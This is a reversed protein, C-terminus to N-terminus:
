ESVTCNIKHLNDPSVGYVHFSIAPPTETNGLKHHYKERSSDYAWANKPYHRTAKEALKEEDGSSPLYLTEALSGAYIGFVCWAQHYHIPSFTNEPWILAMLTIQHEKSGFLLFRDYNDQKTKWEFKSVLPESNKLYSELVKGIANSSRDEDGSALETLDNFLKEVNKTFVIKKNDQEFELRGSLDIAKQISM